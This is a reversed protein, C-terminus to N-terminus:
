QLWTSWEGPPPIVADLIHRPPQSLVREGVAIADELAEAEDHQFPHPEFGEDAHESTGADESLDDWSM